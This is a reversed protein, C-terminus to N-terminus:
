EEWKKSYFPGAPGGSSGKSGTASQILSREKVGEEFSSIAVVGITHVNGERM